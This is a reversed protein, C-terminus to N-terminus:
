IQIKPVWHTTRKDKFTEKVVKNTYPDKKRGYVLPVFNGTQGDPRYYSRITMGGKEYSEKITKISISFLKKREDLTLEPLVRDPRIKSRYLIESKLYNGIGSFYKQAMLFDCIQKNKLRKRTLVEEWKEYPIEESLLDHGIAKKKKEFEDPNLISINGFRRVDNYYLKFERDDIEDACPNIINLWLNSHKPNAYSKDTIIKNKNDIHNEDLVWKGELGLTSNLYLEGHSTDLKMFIQKGKCFVSKIHIYDCVHLDSIGKLNVKSYYKSGENLEIPGVTTGETGETGTSLEKGELITALWETIIKVEAGEPM